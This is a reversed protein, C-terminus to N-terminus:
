TCSFADVSPVLLVDQPRHQQCLRHGTDLGVWATAAAWEAAGEVLTWLVMRTPLALAEGTRRM